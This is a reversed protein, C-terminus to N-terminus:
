ERDDDARQTATTYRKNNGLLDRRTRAVLSDSRCLGVYTDDRRNGDKFVFMCVEWGLCCDMLYMELLLGWSISHEHIFVFSAEQDSITSVEQGNEYIAILQHSLSVDM